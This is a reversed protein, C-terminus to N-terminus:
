DRRMELVEDVNFEQGELLLLAVKEIEGRHTSVFRDAKRLYSKLIVELKREDLRPAIVYEAMENYRGDETIEYNPDYGNVMRISMIACIDSSVMCEFEDISIGSEVNELKYDSELDLDYLSNDLPSATQENYHAKFVVSGAKRFATEFYEPAIFYVSLRDRDDPHSVFTKFSCQTGIFTLLDGISADQVNIIVPFSKSTDASIMEKEIDNPDIIGYMRNGNVVIRIQARDSLIKLAEMLEIEDTKMTIADPIVESLDIPGYISSVSFHFYIIGEDESSRSQDGNCRSQANAYHPLFIFAVIVVLGYLTRKMASMIFEEEGSIIDDALRNRKNGRFRGMGM